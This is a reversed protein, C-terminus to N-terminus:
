ARHQLIGASLWAIGTLWAAIKWIRLSRSHWPNLYWKEANNARAKLEAWSKPPRSGSIEGFLWALGALMWLGHLVGFPVLLWVHTPTM